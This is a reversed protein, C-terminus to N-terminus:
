TVERTMETSLGASRSDPVASGDDITGERLDLDDDFRGMVASRFSAMPFAPGPDSKRGPSVDEHGIVNRLGYKSVLLRAISAAAM